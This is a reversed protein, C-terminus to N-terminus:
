RKSPGDEVLETFQLNRDFRYPSMPAMSSEVATAADLPAVVVFVAEAENEVAEVPAVHLPPNPFTETATTPETTTNNPNSSTPETTTKEEYEISSSSPTCYCPM